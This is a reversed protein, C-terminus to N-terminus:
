VGISVVVGHPFYALWSWHTRVELGDFLSEFTTVEGTCWDNMANGYYAQISSKSALNAGNASSCSVGAYCRVAAKLDQGDAPFLPHGGGCPVVQAAAPQPICLLLLLQLAHIVTATTM